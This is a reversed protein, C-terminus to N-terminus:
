AAGACAAVARGVDLRGFPMGQIPAATRALIRRVAAPALRPAVALCEAAAASVAPAAASTGLFTTFGGGRLTTTTEGPAAVSVWSGRNSWDFLTDSSTTAAVGVVYPDAAPFARSTGGDNGAAAVVVVGRRTATRIAQRLVPAEAPGSVSLNVVRAGTDVAWLIARAIEADDGQDQADLVKGSVIACAPCVGIGDGGGALVGAVATGHWSADTVDGTGDVFDRASVIRGALAPHTADVGSDLIAVVPLQRGAVLPWAQAASVQALAWTAAGSAQAGSAAPAAHRAGGAGGTCALAVAAAAAVLRV